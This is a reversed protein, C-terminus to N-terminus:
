RRYTCLFLHHANRMFSPYKSLAHQLLDPYSGNAMQLQLVIKFHPFTNTSRTPRTTPLYTYRPSSCRPCCALWFSWSSNHRPWPQIAARWAPRTVIWPRESVGVCACGQKVDPTPGRRVGGRAAQWVSPGALTIDLAVAGHSSSGESISFCLFKQKTLNSSFTAM